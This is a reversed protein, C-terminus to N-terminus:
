KVKRKYEKVEIRKYEKVEIKDNCCDHCITAIRGSPYKVPRMPDDPFLRNKCETYQECSM